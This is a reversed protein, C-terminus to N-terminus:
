FWFKTSQKQNAHTNLTHMLQTCIFTQKYAHTFTQNSAHNSAKTNTITQAKAPKNHLHSNKGTFPYHPLAAWNEKSYMLVKQFNNQSTLNNM